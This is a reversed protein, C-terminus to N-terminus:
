MEEGKMLPLHVAVDRMSALVALVRMVRVCLWMCEVPVLHRKSLYNPDTHVRETEEQEHLYYRM